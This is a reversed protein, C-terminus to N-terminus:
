QDNNSRRAVPDPHHHHQHQQHHIIMKKDAEQRFVIKVRDPFRESVTHESARLLAAFTTAGRFPASAVVVCAATGLPFSSAYYTVLSTHKQPFTRKCFPGRFPRCATVWFRALADLTSATANRPLVFCFFCVRESSSSSSSSRTEQRHRHQHHCCSAKLIDHHHDHRPYRDM